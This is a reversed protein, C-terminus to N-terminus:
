ILRKSGFQIDKACIMIYTSERDHAHLVLIQFGGSFAEVLKIHTQSGVRVVRNINAFAGIIDQKHVNDYKGSLSSYGNLAEAFLIHKRQSHRTIERQM